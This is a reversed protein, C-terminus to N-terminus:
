RDGLDEIYASESFSKFFPLPTINLTDQWLFIKFTTDDSSGTKGFIVEHENEFDLNFMNQEKIKGNPLYENWFAVPKLLSCPNKWIRYEGYSSFPEALYNDAPSIFFEKDAMMYKFIAEANIKGYGYENSYDTLNELKTCTKSLIEKVQSVTLDPNLSLMCAIIGSVQPCAFSTGSKYTYSNDSLACVKINLGVACCDTKDNYTSIAARKDGASNLASVSIVNDFSAPYYYEENGSNGSAAVVIIGKSVADNIANTLADSANPAGLSLNIIDVDYTNVAGEIAKIINSILTTKSNFCKLAYIDCKPATGLVAGNKYSAALTSIVATGHGYTDTYDETNDIYNYGGKINEKIASHAFAGSDVVGVKVGKGYVGAKQMFLAQSSSFTNFNEFLSYDYTTYEDLSVTFDPEIYECFAEYNKADALTDAKYIGLSPYLQQIDDSFTIATDNKLKIIYGNFEESNAYVIGSFLFILLSCIIFKFFHKM